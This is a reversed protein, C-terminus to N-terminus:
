PTITEKRRVLLTREEETNFPSFSQPMIILAGRARIILSSGFALGDIQIVQRTASVRPAVNVEQAVVYSPCLSTTFKPTLSYNHASSLVYERVM